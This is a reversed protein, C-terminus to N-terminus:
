KFIPKPIIATKVTRPKAVYTTLASLLAMEKVYVVDVYRQVVSFLNEIDIIFSLTGDPSSLEIYLEGVGTVTATCLGVPLVSDTFRVTDLNTPILDKSIVIKTGIPYGALFLSLKNHLKPDENGM